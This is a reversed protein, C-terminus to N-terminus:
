EAISTYVYKDSLDNTTCCVLHVFFKKTKGKNEAEFAVKWPMNPSLKVGDFMTVNKDVVGEKGKIDLGAKFGPVHYVTLDSIVKVQLRAQLKIHRLRVCCCGDVM